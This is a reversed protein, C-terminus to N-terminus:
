NFKWWSKKKSKEFEHGYGYGYGYGYSKKVDINNLLLALNPLRKESYVSNIYNLFRKDLYNARIIYLFSDAYSSLLLTDTVMSYAATDVIIYDYNLKCYQFLEEIRSNMLLESPNPAIDGSSIVSLNEINPVDVILDSPKLNPNIIFNTVGIEGRVGLYSKIKPARIDMGLLLTKKDAHALVTALNASVFSKGESAITSTIFITKGLNIDLNKPLVFNLNTRLIRFAEAVSSYDDKKISYSSKSEYKPIDAVIPINLVREIDDRSRIKSDLIDSLYMVIIPIILGFVLFGLYTFMKKPAVPDSSSSPSDIIIANPDAVGLLLATEERKQLLYLYLSEKIQQQRQIDRYQREQKPASYLRSNIKLDQKNLADLSIKQSQQLNSLGQDINNKLIKLQENLNVVTPNKETSNELLQKKRLMLQNYQDMTSTINPDEIGVNVPLAENNGKNAVFDKVESIIALKTNAQVIRNEIEQGSQMNLGTQSAADSIKFRTKITEATLDVRSLEDSIKELRNDVFDSTSRSLEEKQKISRQNYKNVLESLFDEAKERVRNNIKLGLITSFEAKPEIVLKKSYLKSLGKVSSIQVLIESENLSRKKSNINPTIIVDGFNTAFKEGFAVKKQKKTELDTYTFNNESKVSIIFQSATKYLISDTVLFNINLPPNKYQENEYFHTELSLNDDLFNSIRNKKTFFQINFKLSKIVDSILDKSMLIEMEDEISQNTPNIIGLDEFASLASRDGNQENKIKITASASYIPSKFNLSFYALLISLISIIFFWKWNRLYKEVISKLDLNGDSYVDSDHKVKKNDLNM